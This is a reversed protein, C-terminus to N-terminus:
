WIMTIIPKKKKIPQREEPKSINYDQQMVCVSNDRFKARSLVKKNQTHSNLNGRGKKKPHWLGFVTNFSYSVSIHCLRMIRKKRYICSM